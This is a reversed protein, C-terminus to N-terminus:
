KAVTPPCDFFTRVFTDVAYDQANIWTRFGEMRAKHNAHSKTDRRATEAAEKARTDAVIDKLLSTDM